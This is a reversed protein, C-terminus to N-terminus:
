CLTRCDSCRITPKRRSAEFVDIGAGRIRGATLARALAPEDILGGRATNVIIATPRMAALEREAVLNRTKPGFPVHISVVDNQMLGLLDAEKGVGCAAMDGEAVFPDYASVQMNFGAGCIPAVNRAIQGFGLLGLRGGTLDGLELSWRENFRGEQRCFHRNRASDHEGM